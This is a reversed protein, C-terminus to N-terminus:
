PVLRKFVIRWVFPNAEWWSGPGSNTKSWLNAYGARYSIPMSYPKTCGEPKGNFPIVTRFEQRVGEAKADEESIDQLRQVAISIIELLIRSAWRPMFRAHRYRGAWEPMPEDGQYIVHGGKDLWGGAEYLVTVGRGDLRPWIDRPPKHDHPKGVRWAERVWLRDGPQGHPCMICDGTRTHWIAGQEPITEGSRLKGGNPGGISMPEWKGLPSNHPLKVLRRTQDKSGDQIGHVSTAQMVIGREQM